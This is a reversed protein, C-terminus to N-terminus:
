PDLILNIHSPIHDTSSKKNKFFLYILSKKISKRIKSNKNNEYFIKFGNKVCKYFLWLLKPFSGIQIIESKLNEWLM